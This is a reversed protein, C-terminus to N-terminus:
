HVPRLNYLDESSLRCDPFGTQMGKIYFQNGNSDYFKSGVTSITSVSVVTSVFCLLWSAVALSRTSSMALAVFISFNLHLLSRM